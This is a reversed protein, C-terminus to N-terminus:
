LISQRISLSVSHVLWSVVMNNDEYDWVARKIEDEEFSSILMENDSQQITKFTVGDLKPRAENLNAFRRM